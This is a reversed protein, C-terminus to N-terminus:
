FLLTFIVSILINFIFLISYIKIRLYFIICWNKFSITYVEREQLYTVYYIFAIGLVYFFIYKM